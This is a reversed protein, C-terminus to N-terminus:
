CFGAAIQALELGVLDVKRYGIESIRKLLIGVGM